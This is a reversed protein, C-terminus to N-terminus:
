GASRDNRRDNLPCLFGRDLARNRELVLRGDVQLVEEFRQGLLIAFVFEKRGAVNGLIPKFKRIKIWAIDDAERGIASISCTLHADGNLEIRERHQRGGLLVVMCALSSMWNPVSVSIPILRSRGSPRSTTVSAM